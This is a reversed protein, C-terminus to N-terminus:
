RSEANAPSIKYVEFGENEYIREVAAAPRGSGGVVPALGKECVAYGVHYKKILDVTVKLRFASPRARRAAGALFGRRYADLREVLREAPPPSSREPALPGTWTHTAAYMEFWEFRRNAQHPIEARNVLVARKTSRRFRRPRRDVAWKSGPPSNKAIWECTKTWSAALKHNLAAESLAATLARGELACFLLVFGALAGACSFATRSPMGPLGTFRTAFAAAALAAGIAAAYLPGAISRPKHPLVFASLAILVLMSALLLKNWRPPRRFRDVLALVSWVVPMSFTLARFVPRGVAGGRRFAERAEDAIMPAYFLAIWLPWFARMNQLDFRAAREIPVLGLFVIEVLMGAMGILFLIMAVPTTRRRYCRRMWLFAMGLYVAFCAYSWLPVSFPSIEPAAFFHLGLMAKDAIPAPPFIESVVFGVLPGGAIALFCAAGALSRRWGWQHNLTFLAVVVFQAFWCGITPSLLAVAGATCCATVWWRRITLGVCWFCFGIAALQSPSRASLLRVGFFDPEIRVLAVALLATWPSGGLLSRAAFYVGTWLLAHASLVLGLELAADSFVKGARALLRSKWDREYCHELSWDSPAPTDTNTAAVKEPPLFTDSSNEILGYDALAVALIFAALLVFVVASGNRNTSREPM